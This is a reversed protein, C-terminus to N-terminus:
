DRHDKVIMVLMSFIFGLFIMVLGFITVNYLREPQEPYEPL